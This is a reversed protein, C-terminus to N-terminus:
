KLLADKVKSLYLLFKEKEEKSLPALIREETEAMNKETLSLCKKGKESVGAVRIKKNGEEFFTFVMGKDELRAVLGHVTPQSFHFNREIEKLAAKEGPANKIMMLVAVQSSTIGFPRLARNADKELAESIIKFMGGATNDLAM